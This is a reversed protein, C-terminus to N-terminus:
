GEQLREGRGGISGVGQRETPFLSVGGVEATEIRRGARYVRRLSEQEGMESASIYPVEHDGDDNLTEGFLAPIRLPETELRAFEVDGELPTLPAPVVQGAIEKLPFSLDEASPLVIDILEGTEGRLGIDRGVSFYSNNEREDIDGKLSEMFTDGRRPPNVLFSEGGRELVSVSGSVVVACGEHIELVRAKKKVTVDSFYDDDVSIFENSLYVERMDGGSRGVDFASGVRLGLFGMEADGTEVTVELSGTDINGESTLPVEALEMAVLLFTPKGETGAIWSFGDGSFDYVRFRSARRVVNSLERVNEIQGMVGNEVVGLVSGRTSIYGVGSIDRGATSPIDSPFLITAMRTRTPYFRSYRSTEYLAKYLPEYRMEVYPATGVRVRRTVVSVLVRDDLENEVYGLQGEYVGNLEERTLGELGGGLYEESVFRSVIERTVPDEYGRPVPYEGEGAQEYEFRFRGDVDGILVGRTNETVEDVMTVWRHYFRLRNRAVVDRGLSDYLGLSVGRVVQPQGEWRSSTGGGFERELEMSVEGDYEDENVVRIAHKDKSEIMARVYLPYGVLDSPESLQTYTAKYKPRELVGGFGVYPALVRLATHRLTYRVGGEIKYGGKLSVLGGSLVYDKERRLEIGVGGEERVLSYGRELVVGGVGVERVGEDLISRVSFYFSESEHAGTV